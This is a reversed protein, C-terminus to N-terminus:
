CVPALSITLCITLYKGKHKGAETKLFSYFSWLSPIYSMQKESKLAVSFVIFLALHRFHIKDQSM